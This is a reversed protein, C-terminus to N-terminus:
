RQVHLKFYEGRLIHNSADSYRVVFYERRFIKNGVQSYGELAVDFTCRDSLLDLTKKVM